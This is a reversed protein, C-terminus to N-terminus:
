NPKIVKKSPALIGSSRIEAISERTMLQKLQQMCTVSLHAPDDTPFVRVLIERGNFNVEPLEIFTAGAVNVIRIIAQPM